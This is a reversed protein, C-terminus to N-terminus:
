GRLETHGDVDAQDRGAEFNIRILARMEGHVHALDVRQILPRQQQKAAFIAVAEVSCLTEMSLRDGLGLARWGGQHTSAHSDQHQGGIKRRVIPGTDPNGNGMLSLGDGCQTTIDVDQRRSGVPLTRLDRSNADMRKRSVAEWVQWSRVANMEM